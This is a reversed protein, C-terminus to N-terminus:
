LALKFGSIGMGEQLLWTIFIFNDVFASYDYLEENSDVRKYVGTVSLLIAM